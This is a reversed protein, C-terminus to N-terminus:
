AKVHVMLGQLRDLSKSIALAEESPMQRVVKNTETDIMKVVTRGTEEDLTFEISASKPKIVENMEQVAAKVSEMAPLSAEDEATTFKSNLTAAEAVTESSSHTTMVVPSSTGTISTSINNIMM